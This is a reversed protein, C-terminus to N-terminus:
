FTLELIGKPGMTASYAELSRPDIAYKPHLGRSISSVTSDRRSYGQAASSGKSPAQLRPAEGKTVSPLYQSWVLSTSKPGPASLMRSYEYYMLEVKQMIGRKEELKRRASLPRFIDLLWCIYEVVRSLSVFKLYKRHTM